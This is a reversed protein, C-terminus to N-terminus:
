SYSLAFYMLLWHMSALSLASQLCRWAHQEEFVGCCVSDSSCETQVMLIFLVAELAFLGHGEVMNVCKMVSMVSLSACVSTM